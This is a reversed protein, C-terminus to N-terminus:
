FGSKTGPAGEVKNDEAEEPLATTDDKAAEEAIAPNPTTPEPEEAIAAPPASVDVQSKSPELLVLFHRDSFYGNTM